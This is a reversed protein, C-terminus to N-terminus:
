RPLRREKRKARYPFSPLSGHSSPTKVRPALLLFRRFERIGADVGRQLIAAAFAPSTTAGRRNVEPEAANFLATVEPPSM